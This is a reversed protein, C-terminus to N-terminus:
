WQQFSQASVFFGREGRRCTVGKAESLCTMGGATVSHGYQLTKQEIVMFFLGQNFCSPTFAGGDDSYYGKSMEDRPMTGHDCDAGPPIVSTKFVQCGVTGSDLGCAINRSPTFFYVGRGTPPRYQDPPDALAAPQPAASSPPAGTDSPTVPVSTAPDSATVPPPVTGTPPGDSGSGCASLAVALLAPLVIRAPKM